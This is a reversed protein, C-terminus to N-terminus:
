RRSAATLFLRPGRAAPELPLRRTRVDRFGADELWGALLAESFGQWAHGMTERYEPRDHELMDLVVLRGRRRLVRAAEALVRPPEVAHHLALALVAANLEGSELPLAELEGQKLEVNEANGLRRRAGALMEPSGDVAVVRGVWPALAESVPGTGCGLDGVAWTPNLLAPLGLLESRAGFLERRLADWSAAAGSFFARSRNRRRSLIREARALDEAAEPAAAVEERVVKWIRRGRPDSTTARYHRATGESRATVWGADALAKLHRSTTSQALGAADGLESVNLEHKELLLVLRARVPDALASIRDLLGGPGDSSRANM